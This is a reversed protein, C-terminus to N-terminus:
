STEQVMKAALQMPDMELPRMVTNFREGTLLNDIGISTKRFLSPYPQPLYNRFEELLEYAGDLGAPTTQAIKSGLSVIRQSKESHFNPFQNDLEIWEDMSMARLGMTIPYKPGYKFPRYPLPKTTHVSRDPYPPTAPRKCEVPSWVGAKRDVGQSLGSPRASSNKKHGSMHGGVCVAALTLVCAVLGVSIYTPLPFVLPFDM